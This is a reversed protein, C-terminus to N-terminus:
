FLTCATSQPTGNCCYPSSATTGCSGGNSDPGEGPVFCNQYENLVGENAAVGYMFSLPPVAVSDSALFTGHEITVMTKVPIQSDTLVEENADTLWVTRFAYWLEHDDNSNVEKNSLEINSSNVSSTDLISDFTIQISQDLAINESLIEPAISEIAPADLNINNTTTFSWIYDDGASVVGDGNGDMSNGSTDVIGDYPYISATPDTSSTPTASAISATVLQGGPLCYITEGCSNTGCADTTTFTVTRYGNGITYEGATPASVSAGVVQINSFGSEAERIGSASTPDVAESFTMQVTINRDKTSNASPAINEVTPPTIDVTTGTTFYWLYGGDDIMTAGTADQISDSLFVAYTVDATASGLYEAPDFSFTKLDDTFSVAVNTLASSDGTDRVYIKVNETNIATAVTDDSVDEPTGNTNYGDIFSSIDMADRFTVFIRTNRSVDTANRAPYHDRIAGSGLSNSLREVSISGSGDGSGSGGTAGGLTNLIFTAIAYASLTIVLGVVANILIAKAKEVRKGDGGATMWIAGAYVFLILCIVGLLSLAVNIVRGIITLLDTDAFGGGTGVTALNADAAFAFFPVAILFGIAVFFSGRKFARFFSPNFVHM